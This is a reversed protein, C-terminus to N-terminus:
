GRLPPLTPGNLSGHRRALAARWESSIAACGRSRARRAYPTLSTREALRLRIAAATRDKSFNFDRFVPGHGFLM